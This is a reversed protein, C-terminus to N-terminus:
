AIKNIFEKHSPAALAAERISTRMESFAKKLYDVDYNDVLPDYAEPLVSFGDYIALWSPNQFIEWRYKVLHGRAKFVAVKHDLRAPVSMKRCDQWFESDSRESLKYHLIIFDRCAEYELRTMENFEDICPQNFSKDPFLMKIRQIGNEVLAISTSELPEIFGSSLGLAICNKNWAKKRMGAKFSILKPETTLKGPIRDCLTKLAEDDSMYASSFVHGNGVRNQLPITWQWGAPHATSITYPWPSETPESQVAIARDCKLWHSWDEYGTSLAGEILLAKFGSCDIFLDGCVEAGDALILRDIFGDSPRCAVDIIRADLCQVGNKIAKEKMLKAFLSADFHLAWDYISLPSTPHQVPPNFNGEEALAIPLSYEALSSGCGHQRLKNWFHHFGVQKIDQGFLGFPHFFDSGQKYWDVFKIGLKCTANTARMVDADTLGLDACFRRITPITAEGVGVTGIESSEVVEIKVDRGRLYQSLSAAAMWGATGGGVIVIKQIQKNGM